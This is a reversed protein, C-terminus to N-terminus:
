AWWGGRWESHRTQRNVPEINTDGHTNWDRAAARLPDRIHTREPGFYRDRIEDRDPRTTYPFLDRDLPHWYCGRGWGGNHPDDLDCSHSGDGTSYAGWAYAPAGSDCNWHHQARRRDTYRGRVWYPDDKDTRSVSPGRESM